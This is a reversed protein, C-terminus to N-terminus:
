LYICIKRRLINGFTIFQYSKQYCLTPLITRRLNTLKTMKTNLRVFINQGKDGSFYHAGIPLDGTLSFRVVFKFDDFVMILLFFSTLVKQDVKTIIVRNKIIVIKRAVPLKDSLRVKATM